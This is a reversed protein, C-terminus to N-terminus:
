ESPVPLRQLKALIVDATKTSVFPKSADNHKRIYRNIAQQLEAVSKFACHKLRRRTLASFFGEVAVGAM